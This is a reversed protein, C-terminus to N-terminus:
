YKMAETDKVSEGEKAFYRFEVLIIQIYMSHFVVCKKTKKYLKGPVPIMTSHSLLNPVKRRAQFQLFAKINIVNLLTGASKQKLYTRKEEERKV